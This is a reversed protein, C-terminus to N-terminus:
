LPQCSNQREDCIVIERLCGLSGLMGSQLKIVSARVFLGWRSQILHHLNCHFIRKCSNRILNSHFHCVQHLEGVGQTYVSASGGKGRRGEDEWDVM